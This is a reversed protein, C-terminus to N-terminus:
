VAWVDLEEAFSDCRQISWGGGLDKELLVIKVWNDKCGVGKRSLQELVYM